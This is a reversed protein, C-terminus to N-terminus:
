FVTRNSNIYCMLNNTSQQPADLLPAVRTHAGGKRGWITEIEHLKKQFNQCCLINADEPPNASVGGGGRPIRSGGKSQSVVSIFVFLFTISISSYKNSM